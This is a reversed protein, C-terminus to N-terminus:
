EKDDPKVKFDKFKESVVDLYKSIDIGLNKFVSTAVKLMCFAFFWNPVNTFWENKVGNVTYNALGHIAILGIGFKIVNDFFREGGDKIHIMKLGKNDIRMRNVYAFADCLLMICFFVGFAFDDFIYTTIANKLHVLYEGIIYSLSAYFLNLKIEAFFDAMDEMMGYFLQKM